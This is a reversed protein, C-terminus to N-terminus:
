PIGRVIPPGIVRTIGVPLRQWIRIARAYKGNEPRMEGVEGERVYYQWVTPHPQAGWQKKFRFTNSDESSRGFDFAGADRQCADKLMQWYLLMNANLERRRWDSGAWPVRSAHGDTLTLSAAVPDDASRIVFIRVADGFSDVIESFFQRSHSPVLLM